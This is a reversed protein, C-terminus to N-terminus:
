GRVPVSSFSLLVTGRVPQGFVQAPAYVSFLLTDELQSRTKYDANGSLIKYDYVRGEGNVFAKVVVPNSGDAVGEVPEIRPSIYLL